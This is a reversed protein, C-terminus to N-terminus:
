FTKQKLFVNRVLSDDYDSGDEDANAIPVFILNLPQRPVNAVPPPPPPQAVYQTPPPHSLRMFHEPNRRYCAAGFPCPPTGAPPDPYTPRRYDADFPHAHDRRHDASNLYCRIGFNCSPRTQEPASDAPVSAAQAPEPKVKADPITSDSSSSAGTTNTTSTATPQSLPEPKVRVAQVQAPAPLPENPAQDPDPKIAVTLLPASIPDSSSSDAPESTPKIRKADVESQNDEHSRKRGDTSSGANLCATSTSSVTPEPENAAIPAEDGQEIVRVEYEFENPLLSFKDKHKLTVESDKALIKTQQQDNLKYFIPNTHCAKVSITAEAVTITGHNRSVRKDNCDQFGRGVTVVEASVLNISQQSTASFLTVRVM